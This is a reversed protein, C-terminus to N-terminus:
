FDRCSSFSRRFLSFDFDFQMLFYFVEEYTVEDYSFETIFGFSYLKLLLNLVFTSAEGGKEM